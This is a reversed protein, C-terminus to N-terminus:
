GGQNFKNELIKNKKICNYINQKRLNEKQYKMILTHFHLLNRYILRSDQLKVFKNRLKLLKKTSVKPYELYLIM